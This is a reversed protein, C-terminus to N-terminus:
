NYFLVCVCMPVPATHPTKALRGTAPDVKFVTLIDQDQHACVLWKGDPCLTFNRPTKGGSKVIEVPQAGLLGTAADVAFVAISDHGRNSGYVFKGNPHVRIEATTSPAKFDAPLTSIVQRPTLAGRPADYDYAVITSNLENIAYAHKGDLGFKFHRPGAGPVTAVSPPNAPTLTAASPDLAYSFIRDVGLDAVIVFRNDPSPTVSHVHPKDQRKSYQGRGHHPIPNPPGLTGDARIPIAAVFGDRYNAALLTRGTADVALHSPPNATAAAEAQLATLRGSEADVAFGVAQATSPHIAYLFKRDPSFTIWAPDPTEATLFPTGLAGTDPDLRVAHIGKSGNRTYTGLYILHSSAMALSLGQFFIIGAWAAFRVYSRPHGPHIMRPEPARAHFRRPPNRSPRPRRPSLQARWLTRSTVGACRSM